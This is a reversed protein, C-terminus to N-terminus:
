NRPAAPDIPAFLDFQTNAEKQAATALRNRRKIDDIKRLDQEEPTELEMRFFEASEYETGNQTLRPRRVSIKQTPHDFIGDTALVIMPEESSKAFVLDGPKM